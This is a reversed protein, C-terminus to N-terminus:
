GDASHRINLRVAQPDLEQLVVAYGEHRLGEGVLREPEGRDLWVELEGGSPLSELALRTRVYNLPCPTGRLDLPPSPPASM